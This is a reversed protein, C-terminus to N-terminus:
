NSSRQKEVDSPDVASGQNGWSNRVYDALMAIADDDMGLGFDLEFGPM